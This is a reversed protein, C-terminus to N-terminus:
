NKSHPHCHRYIERLHDKSVHTYTQTTSLSAHGLMEQIYRIDAGANMLDTAFAHRFKHPSLNKNIGLRKCWNSIIFRVGRDTLSTGNKNIFLKDTKPKLLNRKEIYLKLAERSDKGFFVIRDKKGKGTIKIQEPIELVNQNTLSLLESVRMGSSYIVEFICKDRLIIIEKIKKANTENNYKNINFFNELEQINPVKPLNKKFKPSNLNKALNTNTIKKNFLFKFFNRIVAIHRAQSRQNFKKKLLSSFYARFHEIKIEEIKIEEVQLYNLFRNINEIYAKITNDSFNKEVILFDKYLEILRLFYDQLM